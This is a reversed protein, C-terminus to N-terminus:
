KAFIGATLQWFPPAQLLAGGQSSPARRPVPGAGCARWGDNVVKIRTKTKKNYNLKHQLKLLAAARVARGETPGEADLEVNVVEAM